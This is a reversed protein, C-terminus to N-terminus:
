AKTKELQKVLVYRLSSADAPVNELESVNVLLKYRYGPTFVFGEIQTYFLEWEADPTQRVQMCKMPAVGVCDMLRSNVYLTESKGAASASAEPSTSSQGCGTLGALLLLALSKNKM